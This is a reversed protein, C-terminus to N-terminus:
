LKPFVVKFEELVVLTEDTFKNIGYMKQFFKLHDSKWDAVSAFGEGENEVFNSDVQNIPKVDVATYEVIYIAEHQYDLIISRDGVKPLTKDESYLDATAKKKGSLVLGCLKEALLRDEGFDWVTYGKNITSTKNKGKLTNLYSDWFEAIKNNTM